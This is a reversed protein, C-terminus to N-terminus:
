TLREGVKFVTVRFRFTNPSPTFFLQSEMRTLVRAVIGLGLGLHMFSMKRELPHLMEEFSNVPPAGRDEVSVEVQSGFERLRLVVPPTGHDFANQVLNRVCLALWFSPALLPRDVSLPEFICPLGSEARFTEAWGEFFQNASPISANQAFALGEASSAMLYHHSAESIHVLRQIEDCMRLFARQATAPLQDYDQRFSELTLKLSAAPTRLEHTLMQLMFREREKSKRERHANTIILEALLGFGLLAASLVLALAFRLGGASRETSRTWCSNGARAACGFSGNAEMKVELGKRKLFHIWPELPFQLYSLETVGKRIWISKETLMLPERAVLARLAESRLGGEAAFLPLENLHLFPGETVGSLKAYSVGSPHMLPLTQLFGKPLKFGDRKCLHTQWLWAKILEASGNKPRGGTCTQAYHVLARIELYPYRHFAPLTTSFHELEPEARLLEDPGIVAESKVGEENLFSQLLMEQGSGTIAPSM